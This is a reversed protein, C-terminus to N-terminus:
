LSNIEELLKNNADLEKQMSQKACDLEEKMKGLKENAALKIRKSKNKLYGQYLEKEEKDHSLLYNRWEDRFTIKTFYFKDKDDEKPELKIEIQDVDFKVNAWSEFHSGFIDFKIISREYEGLESESHVGSDRLDADIGREKLFEEVLSRDFNFDYEMRGTNWLYDRFEKRM